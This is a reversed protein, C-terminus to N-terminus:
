SGAWAAMFELPHNAKLYATQYTLVAYAASHSKNFTYDAFVAMFDFIRGAKKAEIGNAKAGEIFSAKQKAMEEPNKKGMARRLLDGEGPSFNALVQSLRIIQEQYIIIGGTEKLIPEMQPLEYVAPKLGRKVEIFLDTLGSRLPGPRYLAGLAILDELCDPKLKVLFERIGQTECQFVGKSDGRALLAYTPGDQFDHAQLDVGKERLLALCDAIVTLTKLGLFDFCVLGLSEVGRIEFQTVRDTAMNGRCLPLYESLPRDGIVLVAARISHAGPLNELHRAYKLLKASDGEAAARALRPEAKLALDLTVEVPWGYEDKLRAPVLKALADAKECDWGLVRGVERILRKPKMRSFTIIHAAKDGYKEKVYDIVEGRREACFDVDIDPMTMRNPNLFREFILDHRIPDIDTIGLAWAALSGGASGRGFGVPIGRDKAWQIFDAVILFYDPVKMEIILAIEKELRAFYDARKDAEFTRGARAEAALRRTLGARAQEALTEAATRGEALTFAPVAYQPFRPFEVQCLEAVALTNALAEPTERFAEAMERSSKFHYEGATFRLRKEDELTKQTQLCLLVEHLERDEKLLYHCDNTAVLPLGKSRGIEILGANVEAQEPLGNAQMELYFRGPFIAAYEEAARAADALGRNLLRWPLEGQLCGSLAILGRSHAALVEKDLRPKYYFGELNALSVLRCLNRYGELNEALLVLHHQLDPTARSHRGAAAVYAEVGLIPKIEAKLAAKYFEMIGFMQGHDTLAVAPMGMSKATRVLDELKITSDLLSYCSHVHLHVFPPRAAGAALETITVPSKKM